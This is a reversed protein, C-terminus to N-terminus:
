RVLLALGSGHPGPPRGADAIPEPAQEVGVDGPGPRQDCGLTGLEAARPAGNFGAPRSLIIIRAVTPSPHSRCLGLDDPSTELKAGGDAPVLSLPKPYPHVRGTTPEIGVTEDTLFGYSRGLLRALTTKGTGSPAVFVLSAGTDPHSVAGAHMMLLHGTQAAILHRTVTQTLYQLTSALASGDTQPPPQVVLPEATRSPTGDAFCRSWARTAADM